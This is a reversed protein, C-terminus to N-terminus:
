PTTAHWLDPLSGTYLALAFWSWEQGYLADPNGWYTGGSTAVAQGMFQEAYLANAATPDLTLLAALAGTSSVMSSAEEIVTGDHGYVAGVRNKRTVGDAFLRDIEDRLFGAQNLYATARGDGSWQGDLAIRWFARSADYSYRTYRSADDQQFRLPVLQGTTRDLGVWDPPLGASRDAGLTSSSAEFLVRYSSDILGRWDHQPDIEAFARYAYPSFYSPNLAVVAEGEAWNGATLYPTGQVVAVNHEWVARTIRTGEDILSQDSWRRGAMLLALATDTDADSANNADLVAGARWQWSLLGDPRQLNTRTWGWVRDFTAHDGSWVARLLAYSQAESTVVDTADPYAGDREFHQLLYHGGSTQLARDTPGAKDVKWLEVVQEGQLSEDGPAATWRRVLHAHALAELALTNNSARFTDELGPSMVLYDVTRWDGGFVNDRIDPDGGVKWHSHANVFASGQADSEHLAVWFDDRTIIRSQPSLTGKIWAIAERGPQDAQQRYLPVMAGSYWYAGLLVLAFLPLVAIAIGRPARPLRRALAALLAAGNLCLFPIAFLIYYNFVVGGRALYLLPLIGLLGTAVAHRDALGERRLGRLGVGRVLNALTAAAGGILLFGDRRLWDTRVLSWFANNRNFMGGGGRALQWLLADTLSVGNSGYGNIAASDFRFTPLLEGKLAAYLPYLSVIAVTALLWSGIGFSAHHRRRQHWAIFLLAPALFIATEKSLLALGFCIGSLAVRSLRGWGDLLLNLSLLLWFLMITDLLVLRQYFIALPSLSFVLTAFGATAPGCGLKRAIQYLLPVMALHLLLMLVRGGDIAGGFTSPGGTVGLWGALLIWGAPAHDYVYTYPTLRGERLIAWAQSAYIGEDDTLTFAPYRFMNWGQAVLAVLALVAVLLAEGPLSAVWEHARVRAPIEQSRTRPRRLTSDTMRAM